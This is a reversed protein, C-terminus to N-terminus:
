IRKILKYIGSPSLSFRGSLYRSVDNVSIDSYLCAAILRTRIDPIDRIEKITINLANQRAEQNNILTQKYDREEEGRPPQLLEQLRKPKGALNHIISLYLCPKFCSHYNNCGECDDKNM